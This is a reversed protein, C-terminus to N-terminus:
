GRRGGDEARASDATTPTFRVRSGADRNRSGPATLAVEIAKRSAAGLPLSRVVEPNAWLHVASREAAFRRPLRAPALGRWTEIELRRTTVSHSFSAVLALARPAFGLTARLARRLSERGQLPEEATPEAVSDRASASARPGEQAPAPRGEPRRWKLAAPRALAIPLTGPLEWLGGLLEAASRRVLLVRGDRVLLAVAAGTRIAPPKKPRAGRGLPAGRKRSLCESAAPCGDCGPRSPRCITAGLEILAQTWEGPSAAPVLSEAIRWIEREAGRAYIRSLVRMANGDVAPERRDFCISAIAGATYRGIGPLAMLEEVTTPFRGRHRRVVVEAAERLARARRYYGLGSWLALVEEETAAALAEVTPLARLFREYYPIVTAVTTQQLMVESIWVPYPDKTRRWPMDRATARYWRLLSRRLRAAGPTVATSTDRPRMIEGAFGIM